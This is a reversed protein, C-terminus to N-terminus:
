CDRRGRAPQQAGDGPTGGVPDKYPTTFLEATAGQRARTESSRAAGHRGAPRDGDSEPIGDFYSSDRHYEGTSLLATRDDEFDFALNFARRVRLDTFKPRRLNFAWGQMRGQSRVTFMEKLLRKERVPPM